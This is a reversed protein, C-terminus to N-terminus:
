PKQSEPGWLRHAGWALLMLVVLAGLLVQMPAQWWSEVVYDNEIELVGQMGASDSTWEFRLDIPDTSTLELVLEVNFVGPGASDAASVVVEDSCVDDSCLMGAALDTGTNQLTAFINVTEGEVADGLMNHQLVSLYVGREPSVALGFSIQEMNGATDWALIHILHVGAETIPLPLKEVDAWGAGEAVTEENVRVEWVVDDIADLDDFSETLSLIILDGARSPSEPSISTGNAIIDPIITPGMGDSITITWDDTVSNSADDTVTLSLNYESPEKAQHRETVNLHMGNVEGGQFFRDTFVLTDTGSHRWGESKDSAVEIYVPLGGVDSASFSFDIDRGSPVELHDESIELETSNEGELLVFTGEWTPDVGDIVINETMTGSASFSDLCHLNVTVVEGDSFGLESATFVLIEHQTQNVMTGNRHVTWWLQTDDLVSDRCEGSYQAPLSLPIVSGGTQRISLADPRQNQGLTIRIDSAVPAQQRFVTFDNPSGEIIDLMASYRFEWDGPLTVRLPIEEIVGGVRPIDLIRTSRGDTTGDFATTEIWGWSGNSDVSGNIPPIVTIDGGKDSRLSLYDIVCCGSDESDTLNRATEVLSVFDAIEPISLWGDGDGLHQDIQARVGIDHDPLLDTGYDDRISVNAYWTATINSSSAITGTIDLHADGVIDDDQPPLPDPWVWTLEETGNDSPPTEDSSLNSYDVSLMASTLTSKRHNNWTSYPSPKTNSFMVVIVSEGSDTTDRKFWTSTGSFSGTHTWEDVDYSNFFIGSGYSSSSTEPSDIFYEFSGNFEGTELTGDIHALFLAYDSATAIWGGGSDKEEVVFTGCYPDPAYPFIPDGDADQGSPFACPSTDEQYDYYRVEDQAREEPITRGIEMNTIGMPALVNQQTYNEYSTGSVTEIIQGLIQYGINSYERQGGPEFDLPTRLWEEVVKEMPIPALNGGDYDTVLGGSDICPNSTGEWTNWHYYTPDGSVDRNWGGRHHLLDYVTINGISYGNSHTPYACGEITEPLLHPILDVMRDELSIANSRNLTFIAASTIAKSLSAIRFRSSENIPTESEEDAMGYAGQFVISGNYAIAVQSGNILWQEHLDSVAAAFEGFARLQTRFDAMIPARVRMLDANSHSANGIPSEEAFTCNGPELGYGCPLTGNVTANADSFAWLRITPYGLYPPNSTMLTRVDYEQFEGGDVSVNTITQTAVHHEGGLLHGIEHSTTRPTMAWHTIQIYAEDEEAPITSAGSAGPGGDGDQRWYVIVDAYTSNRITNLEEIYDQHTSIHPNMMASCLRAKWDEGLHSFNVQISPLPNFEAGIGSRAYNANVQEFVKDLYGDVTTEGYDSSLDDIHTEGPEPMPYIVLLDIVSASGEEPPHDREGTEPQDGDALAPAVLTGFLMLLSLIMASARSGM